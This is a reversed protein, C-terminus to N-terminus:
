LSSTNRVSIIYTQLFSKCSQTSLDCSARQRGLPLPFFLDNQPSIEPTEKSRLAKLHFAVPACASSPASLARTSSMPLLIHNSTGRPCCSLSPTELSGGM